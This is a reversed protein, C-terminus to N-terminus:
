SANKRYGLPHLGGARSGKKTRTLRGLCDYLDNKYYLAGDRYEFLEHLRNYSPLNKM